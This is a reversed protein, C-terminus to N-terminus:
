MLIVKRFTISIRRGRKRVQGNFNDKQRGVIGHLWNYRSEAKMVVLSRQPLLLELKKAPDASHEFKMLCDSGMSLSIVTDAFCPQCDIHMAIGQGPQYENVIAQDPMINLIGTEVLKEGLQQLWPPLEGVFFSSDIRRAKYDYKYGYHQVRRKLDSLWPQQDIKILLEREQLPTIFDFLLQLNSIQRVMAETVERDTRLEEFLGM